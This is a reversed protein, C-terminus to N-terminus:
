KKRAAHMKSLSQFVEDESIEAAVVDCRVFATQMASRSVTPEDHLQQVLDFEIWTKPRSNRLGIAGDKTVRRIDVIESWPIVRSWERCYVGRDGYAIEVPSERWDFVGWGGSEVATFGTGLVMVVSFIRTPLDSEKVLLFIFGSCCLASVTALILSPFPNSHLVRGDAFAETLDTPVGVDGAQSLASCVSANQRLRPYRNYM